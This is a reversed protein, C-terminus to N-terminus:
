GASRLSSGLADRGGCVSGLADRGGCVPDGRKRIDEGVTEAEIVPILETDARYVLAPHICRLHNTNGKTRALACQRM